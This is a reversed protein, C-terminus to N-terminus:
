NNVKENKLFFENTLIIADKLSYAPKWGLKQQHSIDILKRKQGVPKSLDYKFFGKWKLVDKAIKYFDKVKYDKGVGVNMNFPIKNFNKIAFFIFESFDRAFMFERRVNGNGWINIINKNKNKAYNIKYIISALLHSSNAKFNDFEGFLNCPILTKYKFKNSEENIYKCLLTNFVKAYAYAENTKEFKGEMIQSEKLPGKSDPSYVCSSSLNLLKKIKNQYSALIINKGMEINEVLFKIPKKQNLHIGGVIGAAHIILDPNQKKLFQYVDKYNLLDLEERNPAIFNYKLKKQNALINKGVMGTSGTLLIKKM